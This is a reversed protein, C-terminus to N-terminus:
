EEWTDCAQAVLSLGHGRNRSNSHWLEKKQVKAQPSDINSIVVKVLSTPPEDGPVGGHVLLYGENDDCDGGSHGAARCIADCSTESCAEAIIGHGDNDIVIIALLDRADLDTSGRPAGFSTLAFALLTTSFVKVLHM